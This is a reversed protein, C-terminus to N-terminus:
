ERRYGLVAAILGIGILIWGIASLSFVATGDIMYVGPMAAIINQVIYDTCLIILGCIVVGIGIILMKMYFMEAYTGIQQLSGIAAM